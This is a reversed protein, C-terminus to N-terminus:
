GVSRESYKSRRARGTEGVMGEGAGEVGRGGEELGEGEEEGAEVGREWNERRPSEAEAGAGAGAGREGPMARAARVRTWSALGGRGAGPARKAGPMGRGVGCGSGREGGDSPADGTWGM